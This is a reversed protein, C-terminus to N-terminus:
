LLHCVEVARASPGASPERSFDGADSSDEASDQSVTTAAGRASAVDLSESPGCSESTSHSVHSLERFRHADNMAIDGHEGVESDRTVSEPAHNTGANGRVLRRFTSYTM